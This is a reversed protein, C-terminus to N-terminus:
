YGKRILLQYYDNASSYKSDKTINCYECLNPKYEYKKLHYKKCTECFFVDNKTLNLHYKLAELKDFNIPKYTPPKMKKELANCCKCTYINTDGSEEDYEEYMDEKLFYNGCSYCPFIDKEDLHNQRAIEADETGPLILKNHELLDFLLDDFCDSLEWPLTAYYESVVFCNCIECTSKFCAVWGATAELNFLYTWGFEEISHGTVKHIEDLFTNLFDINMFELIDEPITYKENNRLIIADRERM